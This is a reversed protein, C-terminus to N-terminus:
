LQSDDLHHRTITNKIGRTELGTFVIENPKPTLGYEDKTTGVSGEQWEIYRNAPSQRALKQDRSSRNEKEQVSELQSVRM